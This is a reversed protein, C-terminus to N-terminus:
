QSSRASPCRLRFSNPSISSHRGVNSLALPRLATAGAHFPGSFHSRSLLSMPGPFPLSTRHLPGRLRPWSILAHQLQNFFCVDGNSYMTARIVQRAFHAILATGVLVVAIFVFKQYGTLGAVPPGRWPSWRSASWERPSVLLMFSNVTAYLLFILSGAWLLALLIPNSISWNMPVLLSLRDRNDTIGHFSEVIFNWGLVAIVLGFIRSKLRAGLSREIKERTSDSRSKLWWRPLFLYVLGMGLVYPGLFIFILFALIADLM